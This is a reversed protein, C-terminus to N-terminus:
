IFGEQARGLAFQTDLVENVMTRGNQWNVHFGKLSMKGSAGLKEHLTAFFQIEDKRTGGQRFEKTAESYITEYGAENLREHFVEVGAASLRDNHYTGKGCAWLLLAVVVLRLGTLVIRRTKSRKRLLLTFSPLQQSPPTGM